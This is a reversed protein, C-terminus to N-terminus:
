MTPAGEDPTMNAGISPSLRPTMSHTIGDGTGANQPVEFVESQEHIEHAFINKRRQYESIQALRNAYIQEFKKQAEM